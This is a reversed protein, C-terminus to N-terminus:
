RIDGCFIERDGDAPSTKVRISYPERLLADVSVPAVNTITFAGGGTSTASQALVRETLAYSPQESPNGCTGKYIFTYLHVPRSALEVPVGSVIITVQTREGLPVLIARGTEGANIRATTLVINLSDDRRADPSVTCGSLAGSAILLTAVASRGM